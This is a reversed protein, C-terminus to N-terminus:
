WEERPISASQMHALAGPLSSSSTGYIADLRESVGEARVKRLYAEIARAYFQSRSVGLRKAAADAAEFLADPLSVATKM